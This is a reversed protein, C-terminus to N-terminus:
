ETIEEEPPAPIPLKRRRAEAEYVLLCVSRRKGQSRNMSEFFTIYLSGEEPDKGGYYTPSFMRQARLDAIISLLRADDLRRATGAEDAM